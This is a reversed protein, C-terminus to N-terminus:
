FLPEENKELWRKVAQQGATKENGLGCYANDKSFAEFRVSAGYQLFHRNWCDLGRGAIGDLEMIRRLTESKELKKDDLIVEYRCWLYDTALGTAKDALERNNCNGNKPILAIFAKQALKDIYARNHTNM